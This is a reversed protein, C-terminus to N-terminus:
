IWAGAIGKTKIFNEFSFGYIELNPSRKINVPCCVPYSFCLFFLEPGRWLRTVDQRGQAQARGGRADQGSAKAGDGAEEM